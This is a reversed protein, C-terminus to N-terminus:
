YGFAGQRFFFRRFCCRFINKSQNLGIEARTKEVESRTSNFISINSQMGKDLNAVFEQTDVPTINITVIAGLINLIQTLWGLNVTSTYDKIYFYKSINEGIQITNSNLKIGQPSILELLNNNIQMSDLQKLKM